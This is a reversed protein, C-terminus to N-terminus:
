QDILSDAREFFDAFIMRVKGKNMPTQVSISTITGSQTDCVVHYKYSIVYRQDIKGSVIRCDCHHGCSSSKKRRNHFLFMEFGDIDWNDSPSLALFNLLVSGLEDPDGNKSYIVESDTSIEIADVPINTDHADFNHAVNNHIHHFYIIGRRIM